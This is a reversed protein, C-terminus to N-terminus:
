APALVPAPTALANGESQWLDCDARRFVLGEREVNIKCLKMRGACIPCSRTRELSIVAERM